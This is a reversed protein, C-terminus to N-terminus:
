TAQVGTFHDSSISPPLAVPLRRAVAQMDPVTYETPSVFRFLGSKRIRSLVRSVSDTNLGLYDAIDERSMPLTVLRDAYGQLLAMEALYYTLRETSDLRGLVAAHAMSKELRVHMLRATVALFAPNSILTRAHQSFDIECVLCDSLAELKQESDPSSMAGCITDGSKEISLIQRRGDRFLMSTAAFGDIITWFRLCAGDDCVLSDSRHLERFRIDPHADSFARLGCEPAACQTCQTLTNAILIQDFDRGANFNM